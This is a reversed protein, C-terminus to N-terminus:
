TAMLHLGHADGGDRYDDGAFSEVTWHGKRHSALAQRLQVAETDGDVPQLFPWLAACDEAREACDLTKDPTVRRGTDMKAVGSEWRTMIDDDTVGGPKVFSLFSDFDPHRIIAAKLSPADLGTAVDAATGMYSLGTVYVRGDSWPEKSLQAFIEPDDAVERPSLEEPREGFSSTSGRTDVLVVVYGKERLEEYLGGSDGRSFMFARGYRTLIVITATPAIPRHGGPFYVNAALRVGDDM